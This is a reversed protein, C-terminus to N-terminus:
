ADPMGCGPIMAAIRGMREGPVPVPYKSRSPLGAADYRVPVITGVALDGVKSTDLGKSTHHLLKDLMARM